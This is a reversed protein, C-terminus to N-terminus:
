AAARDRLGLPADTPVEVLAKAEDPDLVQPLKARRRRRVSPNRPIPRSAATDSCGAISVAAPPCDGSCAKRRCAAAINPPLSRACRSPTCREVEAGQAIAFANLGDLDRRYADFTHPSMRREVQLHALYDDISAM